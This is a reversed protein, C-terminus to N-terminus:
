VVVNGDEDYEHRNERYGVPEPVDGFYEVLAHTLADNLSWRRSRAMGLLRRHVDVPVRTTLQVRVGKRERAM